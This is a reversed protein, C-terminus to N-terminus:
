YNNYNNFAKSLIPVDSRFNLNYTKFSQSHFKNFSISFKNSTLFLIILQIIINKKILKNLKNITNQVLLLIHKM